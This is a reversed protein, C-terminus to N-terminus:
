PKVGYVKISPEHSLTMGNEGGITTM